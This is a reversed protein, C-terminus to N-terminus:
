CRWCITALHAVDSGALLVPTVQEATAADKHALQQEWSSQAAQLDAVGREAREARLREERMVQKAGSYGRLIRVHAIQLYGHHAHAM